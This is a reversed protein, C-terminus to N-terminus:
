PSSAIAERALAVQHAELVLRGHRETSKPDVEIDDLGPAGELTMSDLIEVNTVWPWQKEDGAFANERVFKPDHRPFSKVEAIAPCCRVPGGREVLYLVLLDGLEYSPGNVLNQPTPPPRGDSIWPVKRWWNPQDRRTDHYLMKLWLGTSRGRRPPPDPDDGYVFSGFGGGRGGRGRAPAKAAFEDLKARSVPKGQSWWHGVIKEAAAVQSRTLAVGLELNRRRKGGLGHSTLNGSGVLGFKGDVLIVKAHLNRISRIEFGADALIRLGAPDLFGGRVANDNLATLLRRSGVGSALAARALDGAVEASIFPAAVLVESRAVRIGGLLPERTAELIRGEGM